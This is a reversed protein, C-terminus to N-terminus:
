PQHHHHHHPQKLHRTLLTPPVYVNKTVSQSVAVVTRAQKHVNTGTGAGTGTGPRMRLGMALTQVCTNISNFDFQLEGYLKMRGREAMMKVMRMRDDDIDVVVDSAKNGGYPFYQLRKIQRTITNYSQGNTGENTGFLVPQIFLVVFDLSRVSVNFLKTIVNGNNHM